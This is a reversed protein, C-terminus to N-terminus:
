AASPAPAPAPAASPAAPAAPAVPRKVPKKVEVTVARSRGHSFKQRVQTADAKAPAGTRATSSLSLPKTTKTEEKQETM